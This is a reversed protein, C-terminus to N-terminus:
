LSNAKSKPLDMAQMLMESLAEATHSLTARWGRLLKKSLAEAMQIRRQPPLLKHLVHLVFRQYLDQLLPVLCCLSCVRRKFLINVLVADAFMM